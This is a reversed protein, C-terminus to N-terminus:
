AKRRIKVRKGGASFGSVVYGKEQLEALMERGAAEALPFQWNEQFVACSLFAEAEALRGEIQRDAQKFFFGECAFVDARAAQLRRLVPRNGALDIWVAGEKLMYEYARQEMGCGLVVDARSFVPNKPSSFVETMLGREEFLEQTLEKASDPDMTFIALHNVENGMSLLATRWVDPTGGSLLYTCEAPNKGQRRLAETAGAFAFLTALRKGTAFPLIGGPLEGKVPVIVIEVGEKKLRVLLKEANKRWVQTMANEATTQLIGTFIDKEATLRYPKAKEIMKNQLAQPLLNGGKPSVAREGKELFRINALKM